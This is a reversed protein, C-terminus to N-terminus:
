FLNRVDCITQCKGLFGGLLGINAGSNIIYEAVINEKEYFLWFNQLKASPLITYKDPFSRGLILSSKIHRHFFVNFHNLNFYKFALGPFNWNIIRPLLVQKLCINFILEVQPWDLSSTVRKPTVISFLKVKLFCMSLKPGLAWYLSWARRRMLFNRVTPFVLISSLSNSKYVTM